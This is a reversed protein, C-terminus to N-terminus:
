SNITAVALTKSIIYYTISLVYFTKTTFYPIEKNPKLAKEGGSFMCMAIVVSSQSM